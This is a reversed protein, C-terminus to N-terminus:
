ARKKGHALAFARLTRLAGALVRLAAAILMPAAAMALLWPRTPTLREILSRPANLTISEFQVEVGEYIGPDIRLGYIPSSPLTFTYSGDAELHAWERYNADFEEMDPAPKYFVCFEGPDVGTFAARVTVSRVYRPVDRLTMRPDYSTSRCVDGEREIDVLDFDEVTVQVEAVNGLLRQVGDEAWGLVAALVSCVFFLAYCVAILRRSDGILASLAQLLKKM